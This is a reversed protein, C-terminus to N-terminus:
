KIPPLENKIPRGRCVALFNILQTFPNQNLHYRRSSAFCRLSFDIKVKGLESLKRSIDADEGFKLGVDFGSTKEYDNKHFIMNNGLPGVKEGSVLRAYFYFLRHSFFRLINMWWPADYFFVQGGLCVLDSEHEFIKIARLLYDEPLRTDADVHLIYDGQAAETGIKRARGVGAIPENIVRAGLRSAIENTKDTSGNDVVIIEICFSGQQKQISEVCATLYKEENKAPIIVSFMHNGSVGILAKGRTVPLIKKM